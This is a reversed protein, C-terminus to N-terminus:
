WPIRLLLFKNILTRSASFDLVLVRTPEIDPSPRSEPEYTITVISSQPPPTCEKMLVNIGNM